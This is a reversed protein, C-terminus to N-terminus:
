KNQQRIQQGWVHVIMRSADRLHEHTKATKIGTLSEFFEAGWKQSRPTPAFEFPIIDHRRLFQTIRKADSMNMGVSRAVALQVAIGKGDTRKAYQFKNLQPSEIVVEPVILGLRTAPVLDERIWDILDWFTSQYPLLGLTDSYIAVGCTEGPDIGVAVPERPKIAIAMRQDLDFLNKRIVPSESQHSHIISNFGSDM